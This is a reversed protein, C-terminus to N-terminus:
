GEFSPALLDIEKKNVGCEDFVNKWGAKVLAARNIIEQAKIQSLGFRNCSSLANEITAERGAEGVTMALGFSTSVGKHALAPVIDFAPTLRLRSDITLFGHNRPHDDTNRVFINFIMRLFLEHIDDLRCHQRMLSAIGPYSWLLRDSEDLQM